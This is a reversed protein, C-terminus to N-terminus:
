SRYPENFVINILLIVVSVAGFGFFGTFGGIGLTIATLPILVGLSVIALALRQGANPRQHQPAQLKGQPAQGIRQVVRQAIAEVLNDDVPVGQRPEEYQPQAYSQNGEYRGYSARPEEYMQSM